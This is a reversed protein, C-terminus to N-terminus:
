GARGKWLEKAFPLEEEISELRVDLNIKEILNEDVDEVDMGGEKSYVLVPNKTGTDYTISIYHEELIDLKEEILLAVVYQNKIKIDFLDNCVAEVDDASSCFKIGNNKGRKGSLVQAKVVVDKINLNYYAEKFDEGRRVVISKPTKIGYKQFLRKGEFEYLNM